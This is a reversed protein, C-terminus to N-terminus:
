TFASEVNTEDFWAKEWLVDRKVAQVSCYWASLGADVAGEPFVNYVVGQEHVVCKFARIVASSYLVVCFHRYVVM